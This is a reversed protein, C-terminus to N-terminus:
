SQSPNASPKEKSTILSTAASALGWIAGAGYAYRLGRLFAAVDAPQLALKQLIGAPAFTYLVAGATAIGLVMGLNRMTALIASAVGRYRRPASGMVASSNPSQFIGTGVGFLALRWVVDPWSATPPLQSLSFAGLACLLAGTAALVKTGIRDSLAGSFPAVAMTALPFATMVLGVRGPAYRLVRQLYFPTLFVLVYQSMFNLLTSLGSFSFTAKSFISLDLMPQPNRREARHFGLGAVMAILLLIGTTANLGSGQVRNVFLLFSALAILATAAGLLDMKGPQGKLDPIVRYAWLFGVIGIPVNILFVYRWGLLSAILGGLSPGVALGVSVSIANIGIAKGRETPPFSATIIAFPVATMMGAALGQLARSLILVEIRPAFGCLASAVTFGAIGLLYVKRYGWIDGVRGYSLLLSSIVLLYAMSVWQATSIHVGFFETITPLIVNVISADIPGMIGSLMLAVLIPYRRAYPAPLSQQSM